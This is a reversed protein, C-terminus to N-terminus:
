DAMIQVNMKFSTQMYIAFRSDSNSFPAYHFFALYICAMIEFLNVFQTFEQFLNLPFFFYSAFPRSSWEKSCASIFTFTKRTVKHARSVSFQPIHKSAISLLSRKSSMSSRFQKKKKGKKSRGDGWVISCTPVRFCYVTLRSLCISTECDHNNVLPLFTQTVFQKPTIQKQLVAQV